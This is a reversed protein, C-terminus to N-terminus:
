CDSKAIKRLRRFLVLSFSHNGIHSYVMREVNCGQFKYSNLESQQCRAHETINHSFTSSNLLAFINKHV